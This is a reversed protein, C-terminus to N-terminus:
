CDIMNVRLVESEVLSTDEEFIIFLGIGNVLTNLLCLAVAM